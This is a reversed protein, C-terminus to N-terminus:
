WPLNGSYTGHREREIELRQRLRHYVERALIELAGADDNEQGSTAPAAITTSASEPQTSIDTSPMTKAYISSPQISTNTSSPSEAYGLSPQISRDIESNENSSSRSSSPHSMGNMLDEISNWEDPTDQEVSSSTNSQAKRFILPPSSYNNQRDISRDIRDNSSSHFFSIQHTDISTPLSPSSLSEHSKPQILNSSLDKSPITSRDVDISIDTSPETPESEPLITPTAEGISFRDLKGGSNIHTLLDLNSQADKANIIFEGPTLMAPIIDSAAIPKRDVRDPELVHGGTAYGKVVKPTTTDDRDIPTLPLEEQKLISPDEEVSNLPTSKDEAISLDTEPLNAIPDNTSTRDQLQNVAINDAILGDMESIGIGETQIPTVDVPISPNIVTSASPSNDSILGDMSEGIRVGEGLTPTAEVFTAPNITARNDAVLRDRAKAPIISADPSPSSNISSPISSLNDAILGDMTAAIGVSEAPIPTAEVSISPNIVTSASPSNDSILGDMSEGIGVGEGLTPTAEVFTASNISTSNDAVLRDIAEAQIITAAPSPQPNIVTSASPPNNSIWGDMAEGIGVDEGLTPTAKVFTASNISTSNDAVLRDRTEAPIITADPSPQPNIVTSTSPPNNSIWGDMAEGIGVGESYTPTAEVFTAPNITTPNDAVLRDRAEAPIISADPSPSSNLSSPISPSNASILGDISEGIGAGEGPIPTAEVFTPPNITTPNDTVLGDIAEVPIITAEPSPQPNIVTSTSPSNASILGDISEGIGVGEGSIPIAEVFTAPNITTPNDAVLRDRAEAPIINTDPSPSPNIITPASPSNDSILGDMAEGISMAETPLAIENTFPSSNAPLISPNILTSPSSPNDPISIDLSQNSEQLSPSLDITEPSKTKPSIKREKTSASKASSPKKKSSAQPNSKAPSKSRLKKAVIPVALDDRQRLRDNRSDVTDLSDNIYTNPELESRFITSTFLSNLPDSEPSIERTSRNVISDFSDIDFSSDLNADIPTWNDWGITNPESTFSLLKSTQILPSHLPLPDITKMRGKSLSCEKGLTMRSPAISKDGMGLRSSNMGLLPAFSVM